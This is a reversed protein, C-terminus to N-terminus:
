DTAPRSRSTTWELRGAAMFSLAEAFEEIERVIVADGVQAQVARLPQVRHRRREERRDAVRHSPEALSPSVRASTSDEVPLCKEAPM